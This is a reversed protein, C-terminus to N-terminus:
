PSSTARPKHSSSTYIITHEDDERQTSKSVSMPSKIQSKTKFFIKNFFDKELYRSHLYVV